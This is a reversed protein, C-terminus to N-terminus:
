APPRRPRPQMVRAIKEDRRRQDYFKEIMAVSTRTWEAVDIYNPDEAEELRLSIGTPRLSKLNRMRGTEPDVRLGEPHDDDGAACLLQRFDDRHRHKFLRKVLSLKLNFDAATRSQAPTLIGM